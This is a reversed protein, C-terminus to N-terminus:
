SGIRQSLIDVIREAAHGDGFPNKANSMREYREQNVLLDSVEDIIAQTETGIIKGAGVEIVEPRETVERLVLVPKNFSVAEEQIGGSDTLILYCRSMVGLLDSYSLPETLHIGPTQGLAEYVAVRVNPNLHVPFIIEVNKLTTALMQLAKCISKLNPGHNERRHATVLLIRRGDYDIGALQQNSFVSIPPISQLADVITNGTVFVDEPSVGERLLNDRARETPAFHLDTVCAAIRRNIEEPFPNRKQFSRLGAEVHGVRVGLYFAALAATMVTTTDGQVLIMHAKMDGFLATLASLSRSAFSGLTQNEQMLDLNIDPKMGLLDLAPFLMERHQSTTVLLHEFESSRREVESVVPAMKIVEPRTGVITVIKHRMM